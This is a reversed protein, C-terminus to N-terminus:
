QALGIRRQIDTFRVGSCIPDFRPDMKSYTLLTSREEFAKELAALRRRTVCPWGPNLCVSYHPLKKKAKTELQTPIRKKRAQSPMRMRWRLWPTPSPLSHPQKKWRRSLKPRCAEKEYLRILSVCAVQRDDVNRRDESGIAAQIADWLRCSFGKRRLRLGFRPHRPETHRLASVM